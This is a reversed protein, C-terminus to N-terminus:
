YKQNLSEKWAAYINDSHPQPACAYKATMETVAHPIALLPAVLAFPSPLTGLQEPFVRDFDKCKDAPSVVDSAQTATM